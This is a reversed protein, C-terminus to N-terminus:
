YARRDPIYARVLYNYYGPKSFPFHLKLNGSSNGTLEFAYYGGSAENPLPAGDVATLRYEFSNSVNEGSNNIWIQNYPINVEESAAFVAEIPILGILLVSLVILVAGRIRNNLTHRIIRM